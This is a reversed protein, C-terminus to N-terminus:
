RWFWQIRVSRRQEGVWEHVLRDRIASATDADLIAATRDIVLTVRCDNEDPPLLTEFAFCRQLYAQRVESMRKELIVWPSETAADTRIRAATESSTATIEFRTLRDFDGPSEDFRAQVRDATTAHVWKRRQVAQTASEIFTEESMGSEALWARFTAAEHLGRDRRRANVEAQVEDTTIIPDLERVAHGVIEHDVLKALMDPAGRIGFRLANLATRITVPSDNVTCVYQAAWHDAYLLAWPSGGQERWSLSIGGLESHDLHLDREIRHSGPPHDTLVVPRWAAYDRQYARLREGLTLPERHIHQLLAVGDALATALASDSM